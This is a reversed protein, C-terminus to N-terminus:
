SYLAFQSKLDSEELVQKLTEFVGGSSILATEASVNGFIQDLNMRNLIGQVKPFRHLIMEKDALLSNPPVMVNATLNFEAPDLTVKEHVVKKEPSIEVRGGGEAMFTTLIYGVYVSSEQSLELALKMWDKLEQPTSPELFPIHLHKFLYRSDAPTSTSISWPDDGVAVVVGSKGKGPNAFNGVSLADSAVHLGMSKMAILTNQGAGKAGGAMAAANAESNAIVVRVGKAHLADKQEHLINFFDALPSGPYGTYLHFGAELAGQILLENGNLIKYSM